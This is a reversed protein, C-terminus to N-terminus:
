APWPTGRGHPCRTRRRARRPPAARPREGRVALRTSAPADGRSAGPEAGGRASVAHALASASSRWPCEADPSRPQKASAGLSPPREDVAGRRPLRARWRPSGQDEDCGSRYYYEIILQVAIPFPISTEDPLAAVRAQRRGQRGRPVPPVGHGDRSARWSPGTTVASRARREGDRRHHRPLFPYRRAKRQHTRARAGGATARGPHHRLGRPLGVNDLRRELLEISSRGPPSIAGARRRAHADKLQTDTLGHSLRVKQKEPSGCPSSASSRAPRDTRRPYPRRETKKASLGPLEVGLARM